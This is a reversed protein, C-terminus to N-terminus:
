LRDRVLSLVYAETRALHDVCQAISWHRTDPKYLWQETTLDRTTDRVFERTMELHSVLYARDSDSLTQAAILSRGTACSALAVLVFAYEMTQPMSTCNVAFWSLYQAM